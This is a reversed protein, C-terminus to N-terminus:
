AKSVVDVLTLPMQDEPPQSEVYTQSWDIGNATTLLAQNADCKADRSMDNVEVMVWEYGHETFAKVAYEGIRRRMEHTKGGWTHSPDHCFSVNKLESSKRLPGISGINNLNRSHPHQNPDSSLDELYQGHAESDEGDPHIFRIQGRTCYVVERNKEFRSICGEAEGVNVGHEPNKLVVGFGTNGAADLLAYAKSTRAGIQIFDREWDLYKNFCRIDGESMLESVIPLNFEHAARAMWQLGMEGKGEFVKDGGSNRYNSRPKWAGGRQKVEIGYPLAIDRVLGLQYGTNMTQEESEVACLGGVFTINKPM